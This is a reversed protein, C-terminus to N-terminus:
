SPTRRCGRTAPTPRPTLAGTRPSCGDRTRTTPRTRTARSRSPRITPIGRRWRRCCRRPSTTVTATLSASRTPAPEPWPSITTSSSRASGKADGLKIDALWAGSSLRWQYQFVGSCANGSDPTFYYDGPQLTIDPVPTASASSSAWLTTGNAPAGPQGQAPVHARKVAKITGSTSTDPVSVKVSYSTASEKTLSTIRWGSPLQFDSATLDSVPTANAPFNLTLELPAQTTGPENMNKIDWTFTYDTYDGWTPERLPSVPTGNSTLASSHTVKSNISLTTGEGVAPDFKAPEFAWTIAPMAVLCVVLAAVLIEPVRTKWTSLRFSSIRSSDSRVVDGGSRHRARHPWNPM